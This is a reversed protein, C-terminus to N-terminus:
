NFWLAYGLFNGEFAGMINSWTASDSVPGDELYNVADTGTALLVLDFRRSEEFLRRLNMGRDFRWHPLLKRGELVDSFEAMVTLWGDIVADALPEGFLASKQKSNPLWEHDDDTERRAAAWSQRSMETMAVLRLRVDSLRQPEVVPWNMLHVFALLDGIEDESYPMASRNRALRDGTTLGAGPFFLHFTKDFSEHFDHALFFQAFSSIFRGYGRMWYIDATDFSVKLSGAAPQPGPGGMLGALLAGLTERAGTKGDADFDLRLAMPDVPLRVPADGLRALSAEARDLDSVLRQFIERM